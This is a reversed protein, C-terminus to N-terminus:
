DLHVRYLVIDRPWSSSLRWRGKSELTVKTAYEFGAAGLVHEIGQRVAERDANDLGHDILSYIPAGSPLSLDRRKILDALTGNEYRPLLTLLTPMIKRGPREIGYNRLLFQVGYGWTVVVAPKPLMNDIETMTPKLSGQGSFYLEWAGPTRNRIEQTSVLAPVQGYIHVILGCFVAAGAVAPVGFRKKKLALQIARWALFSSYAIGMVLFPTAYLFTRLYAGGFIPMVCWVTFHTVILFFPVTVRERQAWAALGLIGLVLGPASLLMRGKELWDAARGVLNLFFEDSNIDFAIGALGSVSHLNPALDRAAELSTVILFPIALVASVAGFGVVSSLRKRFPLGPFAIISLITAAPLLFLNTWHAFYALGYSLAALFLGSRTLGASREDAMASLVRNGSAIAVLLFLVGFNHNGWASFFHLYSTTAGLLVAVAGLGWDDVETNGDSPRGRAWIPFLGMMLVVATSALISMAVQSGYAPGLIWTMAYRLILPIFTFIAIAKGYIPRLLRHLFGDEDRQLADFWAEGAGVDPFFHDSQYLGQVWWSFFAQDSRPEMDGFAHFRLLFVSMSVVVLYSLIFVKGPSSPPSGRM